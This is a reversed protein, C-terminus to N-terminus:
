RISTSNDADFGHAELNCCHSALGDAGASSCPPPLPPISASCAVVAVLLTMCLSLRMAHEHQQHATHAFCSKCHAQPPATPLGIRIAIHIAMTNPSM